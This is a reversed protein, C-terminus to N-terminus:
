PCIQGKTHCPGPGMHCRENLTHREGGDNMVSTASVAITEPVGMATTANYGDLIHVFHIEMPFHLRGLTHESGSNDNGGWHFHFQQLIYKGGLGGRSSDLFVLLLMSEFAHVGRRIFYGDKMRKGVTTTM